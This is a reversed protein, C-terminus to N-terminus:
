PPLRGVPDIPRGFRRMEFHLGVQTADTDGLGAIKQGRQVVDGEKVFIASNHAYVSLYTDNHKLIVLKGYGRLGTGSYVVRGPAAAGVPQGLRGGIGIGKPRGADGFRYLLDGRVPWSWEVSEDDATNAPSPAKAAAAEGSPTRSPDEAAAKGLRTLAAASYALTVARPEALVVVGSSPAVALAAPSSTNGIPAVSSGLSEVAIAGPGAVPKVQVPTIPQVEAPRLRLVQGALIRSPDSLGNWFAVDRYDFGFDLAISFLTDGRQVLYTEPRDDGTRRVPRTVAAKIAAPVENRVAPEVPQEAVLACGGAMVLASAAALARCAIM